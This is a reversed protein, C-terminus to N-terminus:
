WEELSQGLKALNRAAASEPTAVILESGAQGVQIFKGALEIRIAKRCAEVIVDESQENRDLLENLAQRVLASQQRPGAAELLELIRADEATNFTFSKTVTEAM